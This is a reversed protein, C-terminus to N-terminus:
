SFICDINRPAFIESHWLILYGHTTQVKTPFTVASPIINDTFSVESINRNYLQELGGRGLM